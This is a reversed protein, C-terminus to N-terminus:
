LKSEIRDLIDHQKDSVFLDPGYKGLRIVMDAVFDTERETMDPHDQAEKLIRDIRKAEAEGIVERDTDM